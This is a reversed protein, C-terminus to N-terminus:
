VHLTGRCHVPACGRTGSASEACTSQELSAGSEARTCQWMYRECEGRLYEARLQREVRRVLARSWWSSAARRAQVARAARRACLLSLLRCNPLASTALSAPCPVRRSVPLARLLLLVRRSAPVGSSILRWPVRRSATRATWKKSAPRRLMTSITAQLEQLRRMTPLVAHEVVCAGRGCGVRRRRGTTTRGGGCHETKGTGAAGHGDAFFVCCQLTPQVCLARRAAGITPRVEVEELRSSRAEGREFAAVESAGVLALPLRDLDWRTPWM